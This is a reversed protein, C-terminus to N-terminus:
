KEGRKVEDKLKKFTLKVWEELWDERTGKYTKTKSM